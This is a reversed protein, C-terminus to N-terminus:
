RIDLTLAKYTSFPGVMAAYDTLKKNLTAVSPGGDGIMFQFDFAYMPTDLFKEPDFDAM